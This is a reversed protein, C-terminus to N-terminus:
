PAAQPPASADRLDSAKPPLMINTPSFPQKKKKQAASNEQGMIPFSNAMKASELLTMGSPICFIGDRTPKDVMVDIVQRGNVIVALVSNRGSKEISYQTLLNAGHGDLRLYAGYTNDSARFPYVAKIDHESLLPMISLTTKRGDLLVIPVAFKEGDEPSGEGHIRIGFADKKSNSGGALADPSFPGMAALFGILGIVIPLRHM